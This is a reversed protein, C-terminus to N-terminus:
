HGHHGEGEELLGAHRALLAVLNMEPLPALDLLTQFDLLRQRGHAERHREAFARAQAPDAFAVLRANMVVMMREGWYFTAQRAPVLRATEQPRAPDYGGRDTVHFTAGEGDGLGHVWAYNVMCAISEFHLAEVTQKPDHPAPRPREFAIQSYTQEFFGQPFTRGRWQGEPTKLPMDCFACRGDEWPTTRASVLSGGRPSAIGGHGHGGHQALAPGALVLGGLVKLVERRNRM